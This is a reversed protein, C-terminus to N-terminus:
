KFVILRQVLMENVCDGLALCDGLADHQQYPNEKKTLTKYLVSLKLMKGYLKKSFQCTCFKPVAFFKNIENIMRHRYMEAALVNIDFAANHAVVLSAQEVYPSLKAIAENFEVGNEVADQHTIGHMHSNSIVFGRPKIKFCKSDCYVFSNKDYKYLVAAIQVIRSSDYNKSLVYNHYAGGIFSGTYTAPGYYKKKRPLGTTETDFVLIFM